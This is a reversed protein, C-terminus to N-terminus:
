RLVYNKYEVVFGGNEVDLWNKTPQYVVKKINKFNNNDFKVFDEIKIKEQKIPTKINNM